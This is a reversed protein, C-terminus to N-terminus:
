PVNEKLFVAGGLTPTLYEAGSFCQFVNDGSRKDLSRFDIAITRSFASAMRVTTPVIMPSVLKM